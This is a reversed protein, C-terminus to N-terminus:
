SFRLRRALGRCFCVPSSARRTLESVNKTEGLLVNELEEELTKILRQLGEKEKQVEDPNRCGFPKLRVLSRKAEQILSRLEEQRTLLTPEEAPVARSQAKVEESSPSEGVVKFSRAQLSSCALFFCLCSFLRFFRM